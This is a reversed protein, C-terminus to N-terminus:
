RRKKTMLYYFVSHVVIFSIATIFYLTKNEPNLQLRFATIVFVVAGSFYLVLRISLNNYYVPNALFLMPLTMILIFINLLAVSESLSPLIGNLDQSVGKHQLSYYVASAVISIIVSFLFTKFLQRALAKM